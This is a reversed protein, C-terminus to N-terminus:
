EENAANRNRRKAALTKMKLYERTAAGADNGFRMSASAFKIGSIINSVQDGSDFKYVMQQPSSCRSLIQEADESPEPSMLICTCNWNEAAIKQQISRIGKNLQADTEGCPVGDTLIILAPQGYSAEALKLKEKEGALLEVAKSIASGLHTRGGASPLQPMGEVYMLRTFPVLVRFGAEHSAENFLAICLDLGSDYSPKLRRLHDPMEALADALAGMYNKMSGSIDVLVLAPLVTVNLNATTNPQLDEYDMYM